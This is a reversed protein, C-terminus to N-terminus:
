VPRDILPADPSDIVRHPVRGTLQKCAPERRAVGWRDLYIQLTRRSVGYRQSLVNASAGGLYAATIEARPLTVRPRPPIGLRRLERQVVDKSLGTIDTIDRWQAGERYQTVALTLLNPDPRSV